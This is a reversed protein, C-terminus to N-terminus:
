DWSNFLTYGEPMKSNIMTFYDDNLSYPDHLQNIKEEIDDLRDMIAKLIELIENEENM